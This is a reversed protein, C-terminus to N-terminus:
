TNCLIDANSIIDAVGIDLRLFAFHFSQYPLLSSSIEQIHYHTRNKIQYKTGSDVLSIM